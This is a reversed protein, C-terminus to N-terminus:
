MIPIFNVPKRLRLPEFKIVNWDHLWSLNNVLRGATLYQYVALFHRETNMLKSIENAIAIM